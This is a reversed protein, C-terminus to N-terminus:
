LTSPGPPRSASAFSADRPGENRSSRMEAPINLRSAPYGPKALLMQVDLIRRQAFGGESWALYFDWLRRFREDYGLAEADAARARFRSRWARLTRAYDATIDELGLQRMDTAAALSRGIAEVSPLCGGPFVLTNAFSRAAKEAEFALDDAFVIAQLLMAGDAELLRSCVRFYEDLHQWGVAEIMEISVLKSYSGNLERYDDLLVEVRDDLGNERVRQSAHAHQERSLTTTTVRCGYRGAAHLAMSGWGTGIELLHDDENLQLKRCARDVKEHQAARLDIHPPDFVASSYTMSEDLFLSFLENGLDYHAAIHRRAEGPNQPARSSARVLPAILARPRDLRAMEPAFIRVLAVLDDSDWHGEAYSEALGISFGGALSRWFRRPSNVTVSARLEADRPGIAVRRRGQVLEVRGIM